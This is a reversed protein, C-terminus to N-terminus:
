RSGSHIKIYSSLHATCCFYYTQEIDSREGGWPLWVKSDITNCWACKYPFHSVIGDIHEDESM